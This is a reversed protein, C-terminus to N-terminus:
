IHNDWSSSPAVYIGNNDSRCKGVTRPRNKYRWLMRWMVYDIVVHSMVDIIYYIIIVIGWHFNRVQFQPYHQFPWQLSITPKNNYHRTNDDILQLIVHRIIGFILVSWLVQIITRIIGFSNTLFKLYPPVIGRLLVSLSLTLKSMTTHFIFEM